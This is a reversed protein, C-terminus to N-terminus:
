TVFAGKLLHADYGADLPMYFKSLLRFFTVAPLVLAVAICFLDKSTLPTIYRNATRHHMGRWEEM